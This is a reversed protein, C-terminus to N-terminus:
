VVMRKMRVVIDLSASNWNDATIYVTDDADFTDIKQLITLSAVDNAAFDASAVIETGGSTFGFKLGTITHNTTEKCVISDIAYGKPLTFTTDATATFKYIEEHNAPLNFPTASNVTGHLENGSLDIWQNHGIGSPEYQAVCGIQRVEVADVYFYDNINGICTVYVTQDNNVYKCIFEGRYQVWDGSVEGTPELVTQTESENARGVRVNAVSSMTGKNVWITVRYKKGLQLFCSGGEKLYWGMRYVEDPATVNATFKVSAGSNYYVSNDVSATLRYTYLNAVSDFDRNDGLLKQSAGQYKYPVGYYMIEQIESQTLAINNLYISYLMCNTYTTGVLGIDLANSNSIDGVSTYTGSGHTGAVFNRRIGNEYLYASIDRDNVWFINYVKEEELAVDSRMQWTNTGDSIVCLWYVNGSEKVIGLQYGVATATDRKRILAPTGGETLQSFYGSPFKVKVGIVFDDTGFDLNNDDAIQIYDNIGDFYYGPGKSSLDILSQCNAFRVGNWDLYGSVPNDGRYVENTDGTINMIDQLTSAITRNTLAM